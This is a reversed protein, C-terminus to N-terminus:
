LTKIIEISGDPKKRAIVVTDEDKSGFDYGFVYDHEKKAKHFGEAYGHKYGKEYAAADLNQRIIMESTTEMIPEMEIYASGKDEFMSKFFDFQNKNIKFKM